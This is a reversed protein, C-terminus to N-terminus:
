RRFPGYGHTAMLILDTENQHVYNVIASAVDNDTCVLVREVQLGALEETGFNDLWSRRTDPSTEPFLPAVHLITLRSGFRRAFEAALHSLPASYESFDLPLLLQNPSFM